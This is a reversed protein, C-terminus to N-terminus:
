ASGVSDLLRRFTGGGGSQCRVCVLHWAADLGFCCVQCDESFDWLLHVAGKVADHDVGEVGRCSPLGGTSPSPQTQANRIWSPLTSMFVRYTSVYQVTLGQRNGRIVGKREHSKVGCCINFRGIPPGTAGPPANCPLISPLPISTVYRNDGGVRQLGLM